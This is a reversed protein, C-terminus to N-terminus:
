RGLTWLRLRQDDGTSLALSARGGLALLSIRTGPAAARWLSRGAVLDWLALQGDAGFTLATVGGTAFAALVPAAAGTAFRQQQVGSASDWAWVEGGADVAYIRGRAQGFALAAPAAPLPGFSRLLQLSGLDWHRVWGDGSATLLYRGDASLALALVGSGSARARRMLRGSPLEWLMVEGDVAATVAYRATPLFALTSLGAGHGDLRVLDAGSAADWLVVRGDASGSLLQRGDPSIAAATIAASAGGFSRLERGAALDWLRLRRDAGGTLAQSDNRSIALALLKGPEGPLTRALASSPVAASAPAPPSPSEAAVGVPPAPLAPPAPTPLLPPAPASVPTSAPAPTPPRAPVPPKAPQPAALAAQPPPLALARLRNAALVAFQGDPYRRLYARHDEPDTSAKVADWFALEVALPNANSALTQEPRPDFYFSVELSTSEWPVQRGASDRRVGSRVKKFADELGLGPEAMAQLLHRTYLGNGDSGDSAVAGPATAFALLTNHPADVVALGPTVSRFDRGFPNNRCADLIVINVRNRASEMKDLVQGTDVTRYLIEDERQIMARLPLLYNRGRVQLAHGAYYFLGVGGGRLEDGFARIAEYMQEQSANELRTVRFRLRGLQEAIARADNVPNALPANPYDANGIVLAIRPESVPQAKGALVVVNRDATQAAALLGAAVFGVALM